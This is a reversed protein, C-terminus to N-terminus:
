TQAKSARIQRGITGVWIQPFRTTVTVDAITAIPRAASDYRNTSAGDILAPLDTDCTRARVHVLIPRGCASAASAAASGPLDLSAKSPSMASITALTRFGM